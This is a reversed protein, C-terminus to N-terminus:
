PLVHLQYAAPLIKQDPPLADPIPYHPRIMAHNVCAFRYSQHIRRIISAAQADTQISLFKTIQLKVQRPLSAPIMDMLLLGPKMRPLNVRTPRKARTYQYHGM